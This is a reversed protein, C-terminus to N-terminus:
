APVGDLLRARAEGDALDVLRVRPDDRFSLAVSSDFHAVTVPQERAYHAILAEAPYRLVVESREVESPQRPHPIHLDAWAITRAVDDASVPAVLRRNIEDYVAGLSIRAVGPPLRVRDAPAILEDWAMAVAQLREPPVINAIGPYITYHREIRGRVWYAPGKPFLRRALWGAVGRARSPVESLYSDDRRQVNATGDDFSFVRLGPVCRLALAFPVWNINAVFVREGRLRARWLLALFWGFLGASGLRHRSLVDHRAAFQALTRAAEDLDATNSDGPRRRLQVLHLPAQLVHTAALRGVIVAQLKTRYIAHDM